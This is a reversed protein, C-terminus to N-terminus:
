SQGNGAHQGGSRTLALIGIVVAEILLANGFGGLYLGTVLAAGHTCLLAAALILDNARSM